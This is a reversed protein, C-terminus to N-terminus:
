KIKIGEDALWKKVRKMNKEKKFKFWEEREITKDFLREKFRRFPGKGNIAIMLKKRFRENKVTKIFEEMDQYIEQPSITPIPKYRQEFDDMVQNFLKEDNETFIEEPIFFVKGTKLDLYYDNEFFTDEFAICLDEVNIPLQKKKLGM